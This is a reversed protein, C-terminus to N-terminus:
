RVRAIADRDEDTFRETFDDPFPPMADLPFWRTELIEPSLVLAPESPVVGVSLFTVGRREVDFAVRHHPGIAAEVGLEERVERTVTELPTEGKRLFGGTPLWGDRYSPRVLLVRGGGDTLWALSGVTFNPTGHRIAPMKLAEPLARYVRVQLRELEM